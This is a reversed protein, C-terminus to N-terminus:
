STYVSYISFPLSLIMQLSVLWFYCMFELVRCKIWPGSVRGGVVPLFCNESGYLMFWEMEWLVAIGQVLCQVLFCLLSSLHLHSVALFNLAPAWSSPRSLAPRGGVVGASVTPGPAAGPEGRPAPRGLSRAALNIGNSKMLERPALIELLQLLNPVEPTVNRFGM